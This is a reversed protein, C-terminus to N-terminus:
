RGALRREIFWDVCFLIALLGALGLEFVTHRQVSRIVPRPPPAALDNVLREILPQADAAWAWAGPWPKTLAKLRDPNPELEQLERDFMTLQFPQIVSQIDRDRLRGTAQFWQVQNTAQAPLVCFWGGGEGTSDMVHTVDQAKIHLRVNQIHGRDKERLALIRVRLEETEPRETFDLRLGIDDSSDSDINQLLTRFLTQFQSRVQPDSHQDWKWTTDSLVAVWRPTPLRDAIVLPYRHEASRASLLVKSGPAPRAETVWNISLRDVPVTAFEAPAVVANLTVRADPRHEAALNVRRAPGSVPFGEVGGECWSNFQAGLLVLAATKGEGIAALWRPPIKRLDVDGLIVLRYRTLDMRDVAPDGLAVIKLDPITQKVMRVWHLNEKRPSDMVFMAQASPTQFLGSRVHNWESVEGPAPKVTLAYAHWGNDLAPLPFELSRVETGPCNTIAIQHRDIDLVVSFPRPSGGKQEVVCSITKPDVRACSVNRIAVDALVNSRGCVIGYVKTQMGTLFTLLVQSVPEEESAGDSLILVCDPAKDSWASEFARDLRTAGRKLIGNHGEMVRNRAFSCRMREIRNGLRAQTLVSLQRWAEEALDHRSVGPAVWCDMSLSRDQL